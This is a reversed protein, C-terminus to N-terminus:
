HASVYFPTLSLASRGVSLTFTEAHNSNWFPHRGTGLLSKPPEKSTHPGPRAESRKPAPAWDTESPRRCNRQSIGGACGTGAVSLTFTEVHNANRIAAM